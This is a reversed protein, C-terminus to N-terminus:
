SINDAVFPLVIDPQIVIERGTLHFIVKPKNQWRRVEERRVGTCDNMLVGSVESSSRDPSRGDLEPM